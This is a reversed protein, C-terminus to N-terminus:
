IVIKTKTKGKSKRKSKRKNRIRNVLGKFYKDHNLDNNIEKLRIYAAIDQLIMWEKMGDERPELDVFAQRVELLERMASKDATQLGEVIENISKYKTENELMETEGWKELAKKSPIIQTWTAGCHECNPPNKMTKGCQTCEDWQYAAGM